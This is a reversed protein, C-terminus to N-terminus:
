ESEGPNREFSTTKLKARSVKM